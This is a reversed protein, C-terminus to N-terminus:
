FPPPQPASPPPPSAARCLSAAFPPAAVRVCPLSLCPATLLRSPVTYEYKQTTEICCRNIAGVGVYVAFSRSVVTWLFLLSFPSLVLFVYYHIYKIVTVRWYINTEGRKKNQQTFTRRSDNKHTHQTRHHWVTLHVVRPCHLASYLPASRDRRTLEEGLLFWRSLSLYSARSPCHPRHILPTCHTAHTHQEM